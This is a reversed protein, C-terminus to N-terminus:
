GMSAGIVAITGLDLVRAIEAVDDTMTERGYDGDPLAGTEGHGRQDMAVVRYKEALIPGVEDWSHASQHFAHLLLLAGKQGPRKGWDLCHFRGRQTDVFMSKAEPRNM